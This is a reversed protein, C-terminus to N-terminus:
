AHIVRSLISARMPGNQFRIGSNLAYRGRTHITLMVLELKSKAPQVIHATYHRVRPAYTVLDVLLHCGACSTM